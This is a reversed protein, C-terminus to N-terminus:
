SKKKIPKLVVEVKSNDSEVIVVNNIPRSLPDPIIPEFGHAGCSISKSAEIGDTKPLPRHFVIGNEHVEM